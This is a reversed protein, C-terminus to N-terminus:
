VVLLGALHHAPPDRRRAPLIPVVEVGHGPQIGSGLLNDMNVHGLPPSTVARAVMRSRRVWRIRAGSCEGNTVARRVVVATSLRSTSTTSASPRDPQPSPAGTQRIVPSETSPM